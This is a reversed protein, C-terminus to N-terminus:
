HSKSISELYQKIASNTEKEFCINKLFHPIKTNTRNLTKKNHKEM